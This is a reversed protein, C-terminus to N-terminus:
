YSKRFSKFIFHSVANGLSGVRQYQGLHELFAPLSVVTRPRESFRAEIDLQKPPSTSGHVPRIQQYSLSNLFVSLPLLRLRCGPTM